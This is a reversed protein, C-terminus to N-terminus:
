RELKYLARYRGKRLLVWCGKKKKYPALHEVDFHSFVLVMGVAGWVRQRSSFRFSTRGRRRKWRSLRRHRQRAPILAASNGVIRPLENGRLEDNDIAIKSSQTQKSRLARPIISPPHNLRGLQTQLWKQVGTTGQARGDKTKQNFQPGPGTQPCGWFTPGAPATPAITLSHIAQPENALHHSKTSRSKTRPVELVRRCSACRDGRVRTSNKVAYSIRLAISVASVPIPSDGM